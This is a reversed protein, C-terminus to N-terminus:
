NVPQKIKGLEKGIWIFANRLSDHTKANKIKDWGKDLIDTAEGKYKIDFTALLDNLIEKKNATLGRDTSNNAFDRFSGEVRDWKGHSFYRSKKLSRENILEAPVFEVPYHYGEMGYHEKHWKEAAKKNKFKMARKLPVTMVYEEGNGDYSTGGVFSDEGKLKIVVEKLKIVVEKRETLLSEVLNNFKNM